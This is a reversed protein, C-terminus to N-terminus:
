RGNQLFSIEGDVSSTFQNRCAQQAAVTDARGMCHYYASLQPWFVALILLWLASGAFGLAGLVVGVAAGRPRATGRRRAKRSATVGLWIAADVRQGPGFSGAYGGEGYAERVVRRALLPVRREGSGAGAVLRVEHHQGPEHLEDALREEGGEASPAHIGM